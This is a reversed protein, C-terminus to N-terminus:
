AAIRVKSILKDLTDLFDPAYIEQVHNQNWLGSERVRERDSYHGLWNQSAKDLPSKNYNSLLAISNREIYGRLSGPGAEDGIELWLFSTKGIIASVQRELAVERNRVERLATNGEGWTPFDLNSRGILAAGVILRFISGRHNGGGTSLPGKHQSLRTWLKTSSGAKLAHTGVRVVRPGDGTDTRSESPEYFFYVGRRPWDGRGSCGALERAGGIKRELESLLSYFRILHEKRQGHGSKHLAEM